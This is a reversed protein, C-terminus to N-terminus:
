PNSAPAPAPAAEGGTGQAGTGAPSQQMLPAFRKDVREVESKMRKELTAYAEELSPEMVVIQGQSMILRKLEPIKLQTSSKLYVPQIYLIVNRIPLILMRGRAVQSGVQDWLTFQESIRTDQNILAHIQSPGYVLEGKPFDYVIIKGYNPSDCGAIALSRLNDRGKPSMPLLLLFEFRDPKILDLTVYYPRISVPEKGEFTKAFEWMDEQQYFVEPDTQQYRAYMSMQIEFVDKPYRVHSALEAPMAQAAQFLGPYIRSYARIIPDAPDFVYYSVSGNYADVVIKVSNRIYNLPGRSSLYMTANPYHDSVTYADQIWYLRDQMVVVYPDEDLALFPTLSRIREIINQRILIKSNSSTKTTFLLDKDGYYYAFVLKKLLSDMPVGGTGRYNAMVNSNGKPYDIEGADNPAIVYKYQNQGYYIGPEKTSFGYQSEPPIGRIFWTMPEDGGQGAPTMVAGYGHTYSLHENVWNRAAEPIQRFDLERAGLFVQQNEGGLKYRDVDITPFTYYTRLQQLQQYVEDLLEGDWVPINRLGARISPTEIGVPVREPSFDRTEIKQLNYASLTAQINKEIYPRERSIENPVVIYRHVLSPLFSSYRLGLSGVFLLACAVLVKGGRRTQAFTVATVGLLFLFSACIWILPLVVNMEAYGPGFFLPLHTDTSLLDYRQLMFGWVESLMVLLAVASLHIRAGRPLRQDSQSLIRREFWYLIILAHLMVLCAIFLRRQLLSYIPLSFLYFSIDKGFTADALGAKPATLFLLFQEWKAFLPEAVLVGLIASVPTYVWMSGARFLKILDKYMGSSAQRNRTNGMPPANGLYRSAVWFNLFFILFFLVTVGGFVVYRYLLKQWYYFTYGLSDYWWIEVLYNSSVISLVALLLALGVLGGGLIVAWRTYRSMREERGPAHLTPINQAYLNVISRLHSLYSM